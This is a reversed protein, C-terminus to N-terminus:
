SLRVHFRKDIWLDAISFTGRNESMELTDDSFDIYFDIPEVEYHISWRISERWELIFFWVKLANQADCWKNFLKYM